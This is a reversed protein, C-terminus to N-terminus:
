TLEEVKTMHGKGRGHLKEGKGRGSEVSDRFDKGWLLFTCPWIRRSICEPFSDKLDWQCDGQRWSDLTVKFESWDSLDLHGLTSRFISTSPEPFTGM